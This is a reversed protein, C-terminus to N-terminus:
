TNSLVRKWGIEDTEYGIVRERVSESGREQEIKEGGDTNKKMKKIERDYKRRWRVKRERVRVWEFSQQDHAHANTHCSRAIGNWEIENQEFIIVIHLIFWCCYGKEVFALRLRPLSLSVPYFSFLLLYYIISIHQIRYLNLLSSYKM